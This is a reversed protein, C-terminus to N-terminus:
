QQDYALSQYLLPSRVAPRVYWKARQDRGFPRREAERRLAAPRRERNRRVAAARKALAADLM